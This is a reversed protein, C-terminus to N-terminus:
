TCKLGFIHKHFNHHKFYTFAPTGQIVCIKILVIDLLNKQILILIKLWLLKTITSISVLICVRGVVHKLAMTGNKSM